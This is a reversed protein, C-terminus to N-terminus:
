GNRPQDVLWEMAQLERLEDCAPVMYQALPFADLFVVLEKCELTSTSISM